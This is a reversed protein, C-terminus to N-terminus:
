LMFRDRFSNAEPRNSMSQTMEGRWRPKNKSRCGHTFRVTNLLSVTEVSLQVFYCLAHVPFLRVIARVPGCRTREAPLCCVHGSAVVEAAGHLLPGGITLNWTGRSSLCLVVGQSSASRYRKSEESEHRIYHILIFYTM